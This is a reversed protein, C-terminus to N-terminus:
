DSFYPDSMIIVALAGVFLVASGGIVLLGTKVASVKRHQVRHVSEVPIVIPKLSLDGPAAGAKSKMLNGMLSDGSLRPQYLISRNGEGYVVRIRTPQKEEFIERTPKKQTRWTSCSSLLLVHLLLAILAIPRRM